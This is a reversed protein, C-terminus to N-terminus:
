KRGVKNITIVLHTIIVALLLWAVGKPQSNTTGIALSAFIIADWIFEYKKNM